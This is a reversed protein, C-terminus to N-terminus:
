STKTTNQIGNSDSDKEKKRKDIEELLIDFFDKEPM